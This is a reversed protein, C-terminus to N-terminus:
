PVPLEQPDVPSTRPDGAPIGTFRFAKPTRYSFATGEGDPARPHSVCTSCSAMSSIGFITQKRTIDPTM